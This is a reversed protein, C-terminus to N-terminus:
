LGKPSLGLDALMQRDDEPNAGPTTLYNGIMMGNAGAAFILAQLGRLNVQRGGCVVIDKLPLMLRFLAIIKLCTVPTLNKFDALPTGPRPNLFNIPVSDVDLERLLMALSARDQWTEGLGFIGGSCVHLGLSKATKVVNVDDDYNHTTCINPFFARSTELNHHYSQLGSDKLKKLATAGIMGLSACREVGAEEKMSEIADSLIKIDSEKEIRSGSAVISFERAHNKGAEKAANVIAEGQLFPYEKVGTSYKVSQACFSCDEKCLGSKANVIACLNVEMGKHTRVVRGTVSLMDYVRSDPLATFELAEDRSLGEGSLGKELAIALIGNKM